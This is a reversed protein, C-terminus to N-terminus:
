RNTAAIVFVDNIAADIRRGRRPLKQHSPHSPHSPLSALSDPMDIQPDRELDRQPDRELDRRPDTILGDLSRLADAAEDEDDGEACTVSTEVLEGAPTNRTNREGPSTGAQEALQPPPAQALQDMETM